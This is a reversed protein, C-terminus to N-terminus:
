DEDNRNNNQMGIHTKPKRKAHKVDIAQMYSVQHVVPVQNNSIKVNLLFYEGYEGQAMYQTCCLHPYSM